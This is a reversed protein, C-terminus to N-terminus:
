AEDLFPIRFQSHNVQLATDAGPTWSHLLFFTSHLIWSRRSGSSVFRLCPMQPTEAVPHFHNSMLCWAHIAYDAKESAETLTDLFLRRNKDDLFIPARRDRHNLLHYIAAPYPVPLKRAM